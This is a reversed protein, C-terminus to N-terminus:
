SDHQVEKAHFTLFSRGNTKQSQLCLVGLGWLIKDGKLRVARGLRIHSLTAWM